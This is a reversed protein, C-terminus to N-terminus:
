EAGVSQSRRNANRRAKVYDRKSYARAYSNLKDRNNARYGPKDGFGSMYVKHQLKGEETM